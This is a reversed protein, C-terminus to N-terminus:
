QFAFFLIFLVIGFGQFDLLVIPLKLSRNDSSFADIKYSESAADALHFNRGLRTSELRYDAPHTMLLLTDFCSFQPRFGDVVSSSRLFSFLIM